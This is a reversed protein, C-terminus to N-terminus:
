SNARGCASSRPNPFNARLRITGTTQLIENDVLALTGEDLKIKDDQSYALVKLHGKAM